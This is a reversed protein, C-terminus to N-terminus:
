KRKSYLGQQAVKTACDWRNVLDCREVNTKSYKEYHEDSMTIQEKEYNTKKQKNTAM